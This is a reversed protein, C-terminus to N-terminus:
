LYFTQINNYVTQVRGQLYSKILSVSDSSFGFNNLLKRCLVSHSIRDFAKSFDLLGKAEASSGQDLIFGIDDLIKLMVTKTSHNPRYGSQFPTLLNNDTIYNCIQKKLIKEFVKSLSPLISIPRLNELSDNRPKKQVPIIKAMKWARPFKGSIIIRNFVYRIPSIILPLIIKLFKLPLEDLGVANSKVEFLANIVEAEDVIRFNFSNWQFNTQSGCSTTNDKYNRLFSENIENPTVTITQRESSANVGSSKLRKWLDKQSLQPSFYESYYNEKTTRILLNVRNRM